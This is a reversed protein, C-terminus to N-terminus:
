HWTLLWSLLMPSGMAALATMVNCPMGALGEVLRICLSRLLLYCSSCNLATSAAFPVVHKVAAPAQCSAAQLLLLLLL